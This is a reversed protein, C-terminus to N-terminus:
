KLKNEFRIITWWATSIYRRVKHCGKFLIQQLLSCGLSLMELGDDTIESCWSLNISELLHCGESDVHVFVIVSNLSLIGNKKM